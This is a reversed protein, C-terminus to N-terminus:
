NPGGGGNNPDGGEVLAGNEIYISDNFFTIDSSSETYTTSVDIESHYIRGENRSSPEFGIQVVSAKRSSSTGPRTFDFDYVDEITTVISIEKTIVKDGNNKTKFTVTGTKFSAAGISLRLPHVGGYYFDAPVDSITFTPFPSFPDPSM